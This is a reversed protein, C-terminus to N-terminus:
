SARENIVKIARRLRDGYGGYQNDGERVIGAEDRIKRVTEPAAGYRRAVAKVGGGNRLDDLIADKKTRNKNKWEHGIEAAVKYVMPLSCGVMDAIRKAKVDDNLLRIIEARDCRQGKPM